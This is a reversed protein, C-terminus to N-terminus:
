LSNMSINSDNGFILMRRHRVVFQLFQEALEGGDVLGLPHTQPVVDLHELVGLEPGGQGEGGAERHYGGDEDIHQGEGHGQGQGPPDQTGIDETGDVEHGVEDAADHQAVDPVDQDVTNQTQRALGQQGQVGGRAVPAHDDQHAPLLDAIHHDDIDRAQLGNGRIVDFGGPDVAGGGALDEELDLNGVHHGGDGNAQEQGQGIGELEEVLVQGEGAALGVM